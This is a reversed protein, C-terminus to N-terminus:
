KHPRQHQPNENLNFLPCFRTSTKKKAAPVEEDGENMSEGSGPYTETRAQVVRTLVAGLGRSTVGQITWCQHSGPDIVKRNCYHAPSKSSKLRRVKMDDQIVIYKEEFSM